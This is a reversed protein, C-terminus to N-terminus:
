FYVFQSCEFLVMEGMVFYNVILWRLFEVDGEEKENERCAELRRRGGDM